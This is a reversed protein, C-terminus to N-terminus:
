KVLTVDGSFNKVLTEGNDLYTVRLMYVYVGPNMSEGHLTGEWEFPIASSAFLLNGWRDFIEGYIGVINEPLNTFLTFKDNVGNGDPTFVNPLYFVPSPACVDQPIIDTQSTGQGCYSKVEVLYQGPESVAISPNISGNSWLYTADFPQTADLVFNDGPCWLLQPALNLRIVNTDVLVRISDTEMGCDNTLQITYLGTQSIVFEPITNGDQWIIDYAGPIVSLLLSYGECLTTDPGLDVPPPGNIFSISVSDTEEGCRNSATLAYLGGPSTVSYTEDTRGDQWLLTVGPASTATLILEEGECLTSDPGLNQAPPNIEFLVEITDRDNGCANSVKISFIGSQTTVFQDLTSGDQWLYQVGSIGSEITITEGDCALVDPGLNVQPGQTSEILILTDSSTGCVGTITLSITDGQMTEFAPLTSGDQWLYSVDPIDPTLIFLEGPCINQDPGLNIVPTEPLLFVSLSDISQGCQNSITAFVETSDAIIISAASSGDSWLINVNPIGISLSVSAGPCISTDPGLDLIPIPTLLSIDLTDFETACSNTVAVYITGPNTVTLLSDTSGDQWLWTDVNAYTPQLVITDGACISTDIGLQISPSAVGSSISVTDASSGCTNSITIAYVGPMSVSLQQFTSGDSWAYSVGGVGADLLVTDGACLAFDAPLQVVPPNNNVSVIITDSLSNCANSVEVYYTGPTTVLLTDATSMDSWLYTDGQANAQLTFSQNTCLSIDPGLDPQTVPVTATVLITDADLGCANSVSLIYTGQNLITYQSSTSGDQWTYNGEIGTLNIIISDGPCLNLDPGLNVVPVDIQNVTITDSDMGCVNTATVSYVGGNTIIYEPGITGDEWLYDPIDPDLFYEIFDGECLGITDPGLDISPSEILTIEIASSQEGCENSITLEYTGESDITYTPDTSGDQWIFDGLSPDFDYVITEGECLDAVAGLTFPPPAFIQNVTIADIATSCGNDLTVSYTGGTTISYDPGTSGDQWTYTELDPDLAIDYSEGACLDITPPGIDVVAAPPITVEIEDDTMFCAYSVTVSYTGSAYVTLTPGTSGDSWMYTYDPNGPDIVFSDCAVADPGLDIVLQQISSEEVLVDEIYYYASVVFDDCPPDFDTDADNYFNGITIHDEGGTALFYGSVYQWNVKDRYFTDTIDIQPIELFPTTEAGQSFLVGTRNVACAGDALSVWYGVDYCVGAELPELLPAQIYERQEPFGGNIKHFVGVYAVGTRAEQFGWANFPVGTNFGGCVNFYDASNYSVWPTCQLPGGIGLTTPCTTFVEFSPNPVLNQAKGSHLVCIWTILLLFPKLTVSRFSLRNTQDM